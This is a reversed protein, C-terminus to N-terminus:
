GGAAVNTLGHRRLAARSLQRKAVAYRRDPYSFRYALWGRADDIEPGVPILRGTVVDRVPPTVLRRVTGAITVTRSRPDGPKLPHQREERLTRFRAPPLPALRVEYWTGDILRLERDDALAISAPPEPRRARARRRRAKEEPLQDTRKLLGDVPHVYFPQHWLRTTREVTGDPRVFRHIRPHPDTAVFDPVHDRVHKQVVNGVRLNAAIEAFVKDWPRGVQRALYRRLPALNENLIKQLGRERHPRRMGQHAPLDEPPVARGKREVTGGKRPREVIVKPMDKRM